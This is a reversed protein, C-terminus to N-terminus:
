FSYSCPYVMPRWVPRDGGWLKKWVEFRTPIAVWCKLVVRWFFWVSQGERIFVGSVNRGPMQVQPPDRQSGSLRLLACPDFGGRLRTVREEGSIIERKAEDLHSSVVDGMASSLGLRSRVGCYIKLFVKSCVRRKEVTVRSVAADRYCAGLSQTARRPSPFIVKLSIELDGSSNKEEQLSVGEMLLLLSVGVRRDAKTREFWTPFCRKEDKNSSNGDITKNTLNPFFCLLLCM